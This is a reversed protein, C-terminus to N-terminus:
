EKASGHTSTIDNNMSVAVVQNVGKEGQEGGGKKQGGLRVGAKGVSASVSTGMRFFWATWDM